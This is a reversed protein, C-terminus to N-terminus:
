SKDFAEFSRREDDASLEVISLRIRGREDIGVVKASLETGVPFNKHLDAGRPVGLEGTPILGRLGRRQGAAAPTNIQLFVGDLEVFVADRGVQVVVVDLEDGPGFIRRRPAAREAEFLAAFSEGKPEQPPM